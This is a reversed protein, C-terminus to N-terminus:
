VELCVFRTSLILCGKSEYSGEGYLDVPFVNRCVLYYTHFPNYNRRTRFLGYVSAICSPKSNNPEYSSLSQSSSELYSNYHDLVHRLNRCEYAKITKIAIKGNKSIWFNQGSKSETTIKYLNHPQICDYFEMEEIIIIIILSSFM